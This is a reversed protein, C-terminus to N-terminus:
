SKEQLKAVIKKAFEVTAMRAGHPWYSVDAGAEGAADVYEDLLDYIQGELPSLTAFAADLEEREAQNRRAREEEEAARIAEDETMCGMVVGVIKETTNGDRDSTVWKEMPPKGEELPLRGVVTVSSNTCNTWYM